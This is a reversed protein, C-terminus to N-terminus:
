DAQGQDFTQAIRGLQEVFLAQTKAPLATLMAECNARDQANIAACVAIGQETLSLAVARNNSTHRTRSILGRKILRDIVSQATTPAVGLFAAVEASKCGARSNVFHLTQFDPGNYRLQGEAAPFRREDITFTRLLTRISAAMADATSAKTV